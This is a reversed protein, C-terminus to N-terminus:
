EPLVKELGNIDDLVALAGEAALRAALEGARPNSAAAIGIFPVGAACAARADDITDGVYWMRKGRHAEAIRLLGEPAPKQFEVRDATMIPDFRLARCFRALTIEMEEWVRGSFLAFDFRAALRELLGPKAVWRERYILADPRGDKGLFFVNFQEVVQEYTVAVGTGNILHHCLDWDNNWGGANKYDQITERTIERGTFHRVTRQVCERYSDSVDVLVGDMDFVLVQEAM